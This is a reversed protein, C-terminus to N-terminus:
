FCVGHLSILFITLSLQPDPSPTQLEPPVHTNLGLPYPIVLHVRKGALSLSQHFRPLFDAYLLIPM